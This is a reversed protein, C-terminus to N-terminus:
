ELLPLDERPVLMSISRAQWPVRSILGCAELRLIMQHVTPPTVQFYRQIEYESPAQRHLQTYSAIFALYQGQKHTYKAALPTSRDLILAHHVIKPLEAFWDGDGDGIDEIQV